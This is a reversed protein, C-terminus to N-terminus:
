PTRTPVSVVQVHRPLCRPTKAQGLGEISPVWRSSGACTPPPRGAFGGQQEGNPSAFPTRFGQAAVDVGYGLVLPLPALEYNIVTDNNEISFITYKKPM